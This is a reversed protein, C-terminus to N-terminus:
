YIRNEAEVGRMMYKPMYEADYGDFDICSPDVEIEACMGRIAKILYPASLREPDECQPNFEGDVIAPNGNEDCLDAPDIEAYLTYEEGDADEVMVQMYDVGNGPHWRSEGGSYMVKFMMTLGETRESAIDTYGYLVVPTGM